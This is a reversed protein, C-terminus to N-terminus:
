DEDGLWESYEDQLENFRALAKSYYGNPGVDIPDFPGEVEVFGFNDERVIYDQDEFDEVLAFWGTPSQVDGGEASFRDLAFQYIREDREGRFKGPM